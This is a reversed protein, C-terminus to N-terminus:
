EEQKNAIEAMGKAEIAKGVAISLITEKFSDTHIWSIGDNVKVAMIEIDPLLQNPGPNNRFHFDSVFYHPESHHLEVRASLTLTVHESLAYDFDVDFSKDPNM